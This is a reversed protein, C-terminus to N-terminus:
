SSSVNNQFGLFGGTIIYKRSFKGKVVSESKESVLLRKCSLHTKRRNLYMIKGDRLFLDSEVMPDHHYM